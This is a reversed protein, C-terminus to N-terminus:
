SSLTNTSLLEPYSLQSKIAQLLYTGSWGLETKIKAPILASLYPAMPAVWGDGGFVYLPSIKDIGSVLANITESNRMTTATAFHLLMQRRSEMTWLFPHCRIIHLDTRMYAPRVLREVLDYLMPLREHLGHKELCQRRLEANNAAECAQQHSDFPLHGGSAMFYITLGLSWVDSCAQYRVGHRRADADVEPALYREQEVTAAANVAGEGNAQGLPLLAIPVFNTYKLVLRRGFQRSYYEDGCRTLLINQPRIDRHRVNLEHCQILGEILQVCMSQLDPIAFPLIATAPAGAAAGATASANAAAQAQLTARDLTGLESTESIMALYDGGAVNLGAPQTLEVVGHHLVRSVHMSRRSLMRLARVESRLATADVLTTTAPTRRWCRVLVDQVGRSTLLAGKTAQAGTGDPALAALSARLTGPPGYEDGDTVEFAQQYQQPPAQLPAGLGAMPPLPLPLGAMGLGPVGGLGSGFGTQPTPMTPMTSLPASMGNLGLNLNDFNPMAGGLGGLGPFPGPAPASLGGLGLGGNAAGATGSGGSGPLGLGNLRSHTPTALSSLLQSDASGISPASSTAALSTGAPAWPRRGTDEM